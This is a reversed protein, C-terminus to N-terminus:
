PGDVSGVKTKKPGIASYVLINLSIKWSNITSKELFVFTSNKLQKLILWLNKFFINVPIFPTYGHIEKWYMKDFILSAM